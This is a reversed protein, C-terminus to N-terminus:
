ELEPIHTGGYATHLIGACIQALYGLRGYDGCVVASHLAAAM